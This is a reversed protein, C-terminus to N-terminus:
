DGNKILIYDHPFPFIEGIEKVFVFFEDSYIHREVM